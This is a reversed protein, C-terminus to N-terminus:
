EPLTCLVSRLRRALMNRLVFQNVTHTRGRTHTLMNNMDVVACRQCWLCSSLISKRKGLKTFAVPTSVSRRKGDDALNSSNGTCPFLKGNRFVIFQLKCTSNDVSQLASSSIPTGALPLHISAVAVSNQPHFLFFFFLSLSSFLFWIIEGFHAPFFLRGYFFVSFNSEERHTSAVLSWLHGLSHSDRKFRELAGIQDPERGYLHFHNKGNWSSPM